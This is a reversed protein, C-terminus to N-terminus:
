KGVYHKQKRFVTIKDDVHEKMALKNMLVIHEAYHEEQFGNCLFSRNMINKHCPIGLRFKGLIM